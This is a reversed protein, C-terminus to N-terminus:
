LLLKGPTDSVTVMAWFKLYSAKHTEQVFSWLSGKTM